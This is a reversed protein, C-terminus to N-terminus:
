LEKDSSSHSGDKLRNVPVKNISKGFGIYHNDISEKALQETDFKLGSWYFSGGIPHIECGKYPIVITTRILKEFSKGIDSM